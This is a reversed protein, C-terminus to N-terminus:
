WRSTKAASGTLEAIRRATAPSVGAPLEELSFTAAAEIEDPQRAGGYTATVVFVTVTDRKFERENEYAGLVSVDSVDVINLEERLERRLATELDEGKGVGGGPLYWLDSYTHRVLLVKRRADSLVIARVGQTRPRMVMWYLRFMRHVLRAM